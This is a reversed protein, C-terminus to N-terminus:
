EKAPLRLYIGRCLNTLHLVIMFCQMCKLLMECLDLYIDEENLLKCMTLIDDKTIVKTTKFTLGNIYTM